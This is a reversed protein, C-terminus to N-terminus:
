TQTLQMHALQYIIDDIAPFECRALDRKISVRVPDVQLQPVPERRM